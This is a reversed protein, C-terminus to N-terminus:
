KTPPNPLPMWHTVTFHQEINSIFFESFTKWNKDNDSWHTSKIFKLSQDANWYYCLIIETGDKPATEISQWETPNTKM